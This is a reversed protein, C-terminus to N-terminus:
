RLHHAAIGDGVGTQLTDLVTAFMTALDGEHWEWRARLKTYLGYDGDELAALVCGSVAFM